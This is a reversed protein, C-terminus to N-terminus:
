IWVFGTIGHGLQTSIQITSVTNHIGLDKVLAQATSEPTQEKGGQVITVKNTEKSQHSIDETMPVGKEEV